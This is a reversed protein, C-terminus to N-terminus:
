QSSDAVFCDRPLEIITIEKKRIRLLALILVKGDNSFVIKHLYLEVKDCAIFQSVRAYNSGWRRGAKRPREPVTQNIITAM